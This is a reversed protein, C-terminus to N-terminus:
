MRMKGTQTAVTINGLNNIKSRVIGDTSKVLM